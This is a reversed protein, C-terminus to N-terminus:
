VMQSQSSYHTNSHGLLRELTKANEIAYGYYDNNFYSYVDGKEAFQQIRKAWAALEEDTYKSAYLKGPGHFRIYSFDATIKQYIPFESTQSIVFAINDQQLMNWLAEVFWTSDRFEIAHRINKPLLTFFSRLRKINEENLQFNGPLQWLICSLKEGLPVLQNFFLAIDEETVQLRRIHTIFRSAKIAFRFNDPTQNHWHQLTAEKFSGYFTANIEVTQFQHSYYTLWEQQSVSSPYFREKWDKYNYGSTGIFINSM